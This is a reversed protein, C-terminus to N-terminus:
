RVIYKKGNIIYVGKALGNISSSQRHVQRGGVGYVDMKGESTNKVLGTKITNLPEFHKEQCSRTVFLINEIGVDGDGDM